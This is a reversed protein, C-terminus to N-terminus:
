FFTHQYLGTVNSSSSWFELVTSIYWVVELMIQLSFLLVSVTGM